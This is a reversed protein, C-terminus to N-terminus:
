VPYHLGVTRGSQVSQILGSTVAAVRAGDEGRAGADDVGL